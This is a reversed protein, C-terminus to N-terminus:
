NQPTLPLVTAEGGSIIVVSKGKEYWGALQADDIQDVLVATGFGDDFQYVTVSSGFMGESEAILQNTTPSYLMAFPRPGELPSGDEGLPLITESGDAAVIIFPAYAYLLYGSDDLWLPADGIWGSNQYVGSAVAPNGSDGAASTVFLENDRLYAIQSGDPSWSFYPDVDEVLPINNDLGLKVVLDFGRGNHWAIAVNPQGSVDNVPSIAARGINGEAWVQDTGTAFNYIHLDTVSQQNATAGWFKSGYALWGSEPEYDFFIEVDVPLTRYILESDEQVLVPQGFNGTAYPLWVLSPVAPPPVTTSTPTPVATPMSTATPPLPTPLPTGTPEATDTPVSEAEAVAEDTAPEATVATEAESSETAQCSVLLVAALALWIWLLKKM